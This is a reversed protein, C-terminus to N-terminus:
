FSVTQIEAVQASKKLKDYKNSLLIMLDKEVKQKLKIDQTFKVIGKATIIVNDLNKSLDDALKIASEEAMKLKAVASTHIYKSTKEILDIQEGIKSLTKRAVQEKMSEIRLKPTSVLDHALGIRFMLAIIWKHVDLHYWKHGNRYDNAFAHHFNHWNEGLLVFFLWWVDRASGYYYEKSGIDMHVVSNVCFTAQQQIARGIGMFIFSGLAFRINGGITFGILAPIITNMSIAIKWYNKFQWLVIKNRGLKVLALKDIKKLRLDSFMMWGMHSWMFGKLKKKYKLASHPDKDKDTYKHHLIHDSAWALIPGQLTGATLVALFTEVWKTTKFASHAWLRHLGVGVSINAIYYTSVTLIIEFKGLGYQYAYALAFALLILPYVIIIFLAPYNIIFNSKKSM